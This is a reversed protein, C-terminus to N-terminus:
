GSPRAADLLESVTVPEFGRSKLEPLLLEVADVTPQRVSPTRGWGDHLDVISGPQAEELVHKVIADAPPARWDEPDVSWLVVPGFGLEAGAAAVREPDEGYPPRLLPPTAGTAREIEAATLAIERRIEEDSLAEPHRHSFLHNGLEHGEALARRVVGTRAHVREGLCFFTSRAGHRGLLDLIAPTWDGPGDDFTLAILAREGVDVKRVVVPAPV